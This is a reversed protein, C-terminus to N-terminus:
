DSRRMKLSGSRPKEEPQQEAAPENFRDEVERLARREGGTVRKIEKPVMNGLKIPGISTRILRSIPFKFHQFMRRIEHKKGEILVIEILTSNAGQDLVKGAKIRLREGSDSIGKKMRKLSENVHRYQLVRPVSVEYRKEVRYRPHTLLNILQGDNSFVVLGESAVDLRGAVAYGQLGYVEAVKALSQHDNPNNLSSIMGRPKFFKYVALEAKRLSIQRGEVRLEKIEDNEIEIFPTKVVEGNLKVFGLKILREAKRRSVGAQQQVIQLLRM